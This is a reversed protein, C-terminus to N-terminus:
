VIGNSQTVIEDLDSEFTTAKNKQEYRRFPAWKNWWELETYIIKSINLM